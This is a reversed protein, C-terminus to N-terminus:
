RAAAGAGLEALQRRARATAREILQASEYARMRGSECMRSLMRYTLSITRQHRHGSTFVFFTRGASVVALRVKHWEGDLHMQYSFGIQVHDALTRGSAPEAAEVPKPLGPIELDVPQLEPELDLEIDVKRSWDVASEDVLGIRAAEERTLATAAM